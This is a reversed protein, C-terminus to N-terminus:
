QVGGATRVQQIYAAVAAVDQDDLRKAIYGMTNASSKRSGLQWM